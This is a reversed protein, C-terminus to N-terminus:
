SARPVADASAAGNTAAFMTTLISPLSVILLAGGSGNGLLLDHRGQRPAWCRITGELLGASGAACTEVTSNLLM